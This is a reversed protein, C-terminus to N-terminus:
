LLSCSRVFSSVNESGVLGRTTSLYWGDIYTRTTYMKKRSSSSWLWDVEVPIGGVAQISENILKFRPMLYGLEGMAPLYWQLNSNAADRYNWCAHAANYREGANVLARTNSLGNFDSLANGGEIEQYYAPNPVDNLYPSPSLGEGLDDYDYATYKYYTQPDSFSQIGNWGTEDSPLNSNVDAGYTTSNTNDTTIVYNFNPAPPETSIERESDWM